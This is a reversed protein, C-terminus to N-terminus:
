FVTIELTTKKAFAKVKLYMRLSLNRNNHFSEKLYILLKTLAKDNSTMLQYSRIIM